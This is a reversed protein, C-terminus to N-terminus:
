QILLRLVGERPPNHILLHVAQLRRGWVQALRPDELPIEECTIVPAPMEVTVRGDASPLADPLMRSELQIEREGTLTVQSPTLLTFSM